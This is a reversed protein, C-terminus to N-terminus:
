AAVMARAKAAILALHDAAEQGGEERASAEARTLVEVLRADVLEGHEHLIRDVEAEDEAEMLMNLFVLEPPTREAILRMVLEWISRLKATTEENGGQEAQEISAGLVSVFVEDLESFRHRALVEPNDSLVLDRLLESRAEYMARTDADIRDRIDLVQERLESLRQKEQENATGDVRQTLKQFFGYDLLQRGFAVLIERAREDPAQILLELLKERTPESRLAELLNSRRRSARGAETLDLLKERVTTLRTVSDIEGRSQAMQLNMAVLRLFASDVVEDSAKVLTELEEESTTEVMRQLLEAKAKQAEIMQPTIGDAELVRNVLNEQTLFVEPQLLYARREEPPLSDMVSTTFRGIAQQRELHDRTAEMPMFVLALHKEPDHYFYPLNLMGRLQCRPCVTANVMGNLVRVKASPDARVDLVQEVPAEFQNQCNACTVRAVYVTPM